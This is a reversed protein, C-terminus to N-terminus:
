PRHLETYAYVQANYQEKLVDIPNPENNTILPLGRTAQLERIEYPAGDLAHLLLGLAYANVVVNEPLGGKSM